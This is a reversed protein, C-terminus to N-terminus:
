AGLSALASTVREPTPDSLQGVLEGDRMLVVEDAYGAAAPDHTVMIITHGAENLEKLIELVAKGSESDLAGTPEDALIIEGGNM